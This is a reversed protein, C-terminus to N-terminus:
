HPHTITLHCILFVELYIIIYLIYLGPSNSLSLDSLVNPFAYENHEYVTPPLKSSSKPSLRNGYSNSNTYRPSSTNSTSNSYLENFSTARSSSPSPRTYATLNMIETFLTINSYKRKALLV